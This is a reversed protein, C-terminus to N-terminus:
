FHLRELRKSNENLRMKHWMPNSKLIAITDVMLKNLTTLGNDLLVLRNYMDDKDQTVGEGVNEIQKCCEEMQILKCNIETNVETVIEMKQNQQIKHLFQKFYM